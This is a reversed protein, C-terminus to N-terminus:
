AKPVLGLIADRNTWSSAKAAAEERSLWRQAIHENSNLRVDDTSEVQVAFVTEHNEVVDPAYRDRWADAILFTNEIGTAVVKTSLGTEEELERQAADLALEGELLSGTVSQWFGRPQLRELMLVQASKTYIIVLVSEPRKYSMTFLRSRTSFCCCVNWMCINVAGCFLAVQM